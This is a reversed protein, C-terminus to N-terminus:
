MGKIVFEVTEKDLTKRKSHDLLMKCSKIINATYDKVAIADTLQQEGQVRPDNLVWGIRVITIRLKYNLLSETMALLPAERWWSAIEVERFHSQKASAGSPSAIVPIYLLVM